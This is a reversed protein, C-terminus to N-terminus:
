TRLAPYIHAFEELTHPRMGSPILHTFRHTDADIDLQMVGVLKEGIREQRADPITFASSPVWVHEVGDRTLTRVQHTHGSAVFRLDCQALLPLLWSRAAAPVYRTHVVTEEPADRFLPKHLFLGVPGRMGRLTQSLWSMQAADEATYTAMLPANLGIFQWGHASFTWHDPGFLHRYQGLRILNIPDATVHGPGAEHEGIDHNGPLCRMSLSRRSLIGHAYSLESARHIANASIDGLHIIEDPKVAELWREVAGWNEVLLQDASDFHTDAVLAIKM